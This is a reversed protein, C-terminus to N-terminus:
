DAFASVENQRLRLKLENIDSSVSLESILGGEFTFSALGDWEVFKQTGAYGLFNGRHVGQFTMHAIATSQSVEIDRIVCTYGGLAAHVSRLYELFGSRGSKEEGLSGRFRLSESLIEYVVEEKPVNWVEHYFRGILLKKDHDLETDLHDTHPSSDHPSLDM